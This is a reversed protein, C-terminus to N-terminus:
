HAARKPLYTFDYEAAWTRGGDSSSESLQRVRGESLKSFSVRRVLTAGARTASDARLRLEGDEFRGTFFIPIGQGDAWYQEWRHMGPNFSTLSRGEGGGQGRWVELLVCGGLIRDVQSTGVPNGAKDAVDWEGLWFDFERYPAAAAAGPKCPARNVEMAASAAVFEKDKALGAFAKEQAAPAAAPYFDAEALTQLIGLADRKNGSLALAQAMQYQVLSPQVGLKQAMRLPAIAAAGKGLQVLSIGLRLWAVGDEPTAATVKEYSQAAKAWEHKQFAADAVKAEPSAVGLSALLCISLPSLM